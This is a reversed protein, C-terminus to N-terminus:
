EIAERKGWGLTTSFFSEIKNAKCVLYRANVVDEHDAGSDELSALKQLAEKKLVMAYDVLEFLEDSTAVVNVYSRKEM